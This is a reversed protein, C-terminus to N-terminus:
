QGSVRQARRLRPSSLDTGGRDGRANAAKGEVDRKDKAPQVRRLVRRASLPRRADGAEVMTRVVTIARAAALDWNTM